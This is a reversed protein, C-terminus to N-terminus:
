KRDENIKNGELFVHIRTLLTLCRLRDASLLSQKQQDFWRELDSAASELRPTDATDLMAKVEREWQDVHTQLEISLASLAVLLSGDVLESAQLVKTPDFPTGNLTGGQFLNTVNVTVNQHSIFDRGVSNHDAQIMPMVGSGAVLGPTM